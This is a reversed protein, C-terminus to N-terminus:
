VSAESRQRIKKVLHERKLGFQVALTGAVYISSYTGVLIGVILSWSFALLSEGGLLALCLVVALTLGSTMLTRSLTQNTSLDIIDDSSMHRYRQFSERVRDYIVITDNLSYGMVTLLAALTILNFELGTAALMGLILIPDHLLSIFAALAFRWEFRVAIYFTCAWLAFLVSWFAVQLLEAGIQPGIIQIQTLEAYPIHEQIMQKMSQAEVDQAPFRVLFQQLGGVSQVMAHGLGAKKLDDRLQEAEMSQETALRLEVGGTFDLGLHIGKFAIAFASVCILLLSLKLAKSKLSMFKIKSQHSFFDIGPKLSRVWYTVGDMVHHTLYVSTFLSACIGITLTIAFGKISGSGMWFLIVAVLLTSMNSDFITDFARKFGIQISKIMPEGVRLEERIRENILINADVAMGVTLVIGAIGPLTLTADLLSLLAVILLINVLLGFNAVWGYVRYYIAMFFFVLISATVLSNIGKHINDEGLSPGITAEEVIRVPAALSGSRLLMALDQAERQSRMGTIQFQSGLASQIMPASIVEEIPAQDAPHESYVVAMRRGQNAQTEQHFAKEQAPDIGIHVVVSGYEDRQARAYIIADGTLVPTKEVHILGFERMKLPETSTDAQTRGDAVIHFRLTATKGLLAKARSIDQIGPIDISIFQRGQRAVSAEAIGLENIRKELSRMTQDVASGILHASEQESLPLRFRVFDDALAEPELHYSKLHQLVRAKDAPQFSFEAVHESILQSDKIETVDHKLRTLVQERLKLELDRTDVELLLHVGGRLDLGLKMPKAGIATLWHPLPRKLNLAPELDPFQDAILQKAQMQTETNAFAIWAPEGLEYRTEQIDHQHLWDLAQTLQNQDSRIEVAPYEPYLNPISFLVAFVLVSCVILHDRISFSRM